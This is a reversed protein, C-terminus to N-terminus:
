SCRTAREQRRGRHVVERFPRRDPKLIPKLPRDAHIRVHSLGGAGIIVCKDRHAPTPCLSFAQHATSTAVESRAM